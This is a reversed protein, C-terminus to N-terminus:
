MEMINIRGETDTFFKVTSNVTLSVSHLTEHKDHQASTTLM